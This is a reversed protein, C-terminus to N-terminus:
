GMGVRARCLAQELNHCGYVDNNNNCSYEQHTSLHYSPQTFIAQCFTSRHSRIAKYEHISPPNRVKVMGATTRTPMATVKKRPNPKISEKGALARGITRLVISLADLDWYEAVLRDDSPSFVEVTLGIVSAEHSTTARVTVAKSSM